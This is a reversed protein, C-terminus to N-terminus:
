RAAQSISYYWTQHGQSVELRMARNTLSLQTEQVLLDMLHPPYGMDLMAQWLKEHHAFPLGEQLGCFVYMPQKHDKVKHM